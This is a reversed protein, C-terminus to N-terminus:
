IRGGQAAVLTGRTGNYGFVVTGRPITLTAGDEVFVAGVLVYLNDADLTTDETINGQVAVTEDVFNYMANGRAIVQKGEMCRLEVVFQFRGTPQEPSPGIAAGAPGLLMLRELHPTWVALPDSNGFLDTVSGDTLLGDTVNVYLKAGSVRDQWYMYMTVPMDYGNPHISLYVKQDPNVAPDYAPYNTEVLVAPRAMAFAPKVASKLSGADAARVWPAVDVPTGPLRDVVPGDASVPTAAQAAGGLAVVAVTM